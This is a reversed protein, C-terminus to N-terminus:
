FQGSVQLWIRQNRSAFAPDTLPQGGQTRWAVSAKFQLTGSQANLGLGIGALTRSNAAANFPNRNIQVAGMDYFAVGQVTEMLARRMDLNAMWGQDGVGEGQPYARVGNAGGLSFKESSNLNTNSQQGSIVLSLSNQESLQQLRSLTYSLRVFGGNSHASLADTSLLAADMTLKGSVLSADLVTIGTADQHKGMVGLNFLQVQKSATSIPVNSQDVLAKREWTLTGYLNTLQSRIFPYTAYLSTSSATGQAHLAIFEKGLYYRTDSYAGGIKLGDGGIPLQYAIRAYQMNLTSELVRVSFQDGRQLPSNL